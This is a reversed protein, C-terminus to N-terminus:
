DVVVNVHQTQSNPDFDAEGYYDIGHHIVHAKVAGEHTCDVNQFSYIGPPPTLNQYPPKTNGEIWGCVRGGAYEVQYEISVRVEMKVELTLLMM